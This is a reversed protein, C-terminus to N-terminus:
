FGFDKRGKGHRRYRDRSFTVCADDGRSKLSFAVSLTVELGQPLRSGVIHYANVNVAEAEGKKEMPSYTDIFGQHYSVGLKLLLDRHYLEIRSRIGAGAFAGAHLLSMNAEGVPVTDNMQIPATRTMVIKGGLRVGAEAGLTVYPQFAPVIPWRVELPLRLDFYHLNLSYHVQSGSGIHTYKLGTGRPVYMVEPALSLVQNLPIDAFLGGMTRFVTDQPLQSLAEIHWYLMRPMNIGGKVGVCIWQNETKKRSPQAQATLQFVVLALVIIWFRKM